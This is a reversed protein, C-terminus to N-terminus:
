CDVEEANEVIFDLRSAWSEREVKKFGRLKEESVEERVRVVVGL